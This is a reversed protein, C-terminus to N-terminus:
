SVIHMIKRGARGTIKNAMIICNYAVIIEGIAADYNRHKVYWIHEMGLIEKLISFTREIEWRLKHRSSERKRLEIGIKRNYTLRDNIIGRRRNTDIQLHCNM